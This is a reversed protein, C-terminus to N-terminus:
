QRFLYPVGQRAVPVSKPVLKGDAVEGLAPMAVEVLEGGDGGEVVGGACDVDGALTGEQDVVAGDGGGGLFGFGM